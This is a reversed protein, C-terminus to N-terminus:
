AWPEFGTGLVVGLSKRLNAAKAGGYAAEFQAQVNAWLPLAEDYRKRGHDTIQIDRARRDLGPAIALFGERVLPKLNTALTTRDMAILTALQKITMPGHKAVEYLIAFQTVRLGSPVLAKDYSARLYRAAKCVALCSCRGDIDEIPVTKANMGETWSDEGTYSPIGSIVVGGNSHAPM